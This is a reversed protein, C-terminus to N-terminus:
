QGALGAVGAAIGLVASVGAYVAAAAALEPAAVAALAAAGLATIGSGAWLTNSVVSTAQAPEGGYVAATDAAVSSPSCMGGSDGSDGSDGGGGGDGGGDGDGGGSVLALEHPELERYGWYDTATAAEVSAAQLIKAM